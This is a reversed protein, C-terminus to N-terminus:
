VPHDVLTYHCILAGLLDFCLWATGLIKRYFSGIGQKSPLSEAFDYLCLQQEKLFLVMM